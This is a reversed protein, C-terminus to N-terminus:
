IIMLDGASGSSAPEGSCGRDEATGQGRRAQGLVAAPPSASSPVSIGGQWRRRRARLSASGRPPRATGAREAALDGGQVAGYPVGTGRQRGRM